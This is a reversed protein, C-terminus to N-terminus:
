LLYWIFLVLRYIGILCSVVPSQHAGSKMDSIVYYLLTWYRHLFTDFYAHVSKSITVICWWMPTDFPRNLVTNLCKTLRTRMYRWTKLILCVKTPLLITSWQSTTPAAGINMRWKVSSKLKNCLFLQVGLRSVYSTQSKTRRINSIKRYVCFISIDSFLGIRKIRLHILICVLVPVDYIFRHINFYLLVIM